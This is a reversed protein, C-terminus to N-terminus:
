VRWPADQNACIFGVTEGVRVETGARIKIRLIGAREAAVETSTKDTDFTLLADGKEVFGGDRRHWAALVGSLFAEGVAPIRVETSM